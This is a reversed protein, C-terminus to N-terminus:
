ASMHTTCDYLAVYNVDGIAHQMRKLSHDKMSQVIGASFPSIVCLTYAYLM